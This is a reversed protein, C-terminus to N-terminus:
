LCALSLCSYALVCSLGTPIQPVAVPWLLHDRSAAAGQSACSLVCRMDPKHFQHTRFGGDGHGGTAYWTVFMMDSGDVVKEAVPEAVQQESVPETCPALLLPIQQKACTRGAAGWGPSAACTVGRRQRIPRSGGWDICCGPLLRLAPRVALERRSATTVTCQSSTTWTFGNLLILGVIALVKWHQRLSGLM